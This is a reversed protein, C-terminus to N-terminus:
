FMKLQTDFKEPTLARIERYIKKIYFKDNVNYDEWTKDVHENYVTHMWEGSDVQIIRKDGLNEKIIKCGENSIYYRITKQMDEETVIGNTSCIKKFKWNGKIKVGSCYEFINRNNKIYDEPEVDNLFYHYLAKSVIQNSKNKHLAKPFEFRGKCKTKAHYPVGDEMKVISVGDKNLEAYDKDSIEKWDHLAIYNNVDPVIMKQYTDHELNLNTLAEWKKCISLYNDVQNEPIITELGDTNQMIPIAGPVNELLMAYLMMLSLQGNITIRMTLEPDYLYSNEENSLGYTANLIIKYVYNRPDSKPIKKRENFFWEYQECFIDKPLHAPSWKNRIALNPYFSTVDSSMIIMGNGSEYIGKKAGHVGGLGFHTEVGRYKISHKFSGKTEGNRIILNEFLTKLENFQTMTDEFKVYDLILNKCIIESRYTRLDKIDKKKAGTAKCLFYMFIEKSIKPESASNLNIGYEKTLDLRLKIQQKSLNYIQKTSKVDNRCYSAVMKLDEVSKIGDAHHIPMDQVNYWDMSFQIWKLSSRKAPNDWHNLKFVDIQKIKIQHEAWEQWERKNQRDICDQAKRYILNAADIDSLLRLRDINKIIFQTIQADFSLGNFSIHWQNLKINEKFFDYLDELDNRYECITFVKVEEKKYHEFVGLFCNTLTEYDHVWHNM